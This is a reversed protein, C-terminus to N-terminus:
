AAADILRCINPAMKPNYRRLRRFGTSLPNYMPFRRSASNTCLTIAKSSM